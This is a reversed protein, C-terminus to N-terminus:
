QSYILYLPLVSRLFSVLPAVAETFSLSVPPQSVTAARSRGMTQPRSPPPTDSFVPLPTAASLTSARARMSQTTPPVITVVAPISTVATKFLDKVVEPTYIPAETQINKNAQAYWFSTTQAGTTSASAVAKCTLAV